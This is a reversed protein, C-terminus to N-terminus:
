EEYSVDIQENDSISLVSRRLEVISPIYAEKIEVYDKKNKFKKSSGFSYDETPSCSLCNDKKKHTGAGSFGFEKIEKKEGCSECTKSKTYINEKTIFQCAGKAGMTQLHNRIGKIIDSDEKTYDNTM